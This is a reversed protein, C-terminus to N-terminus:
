EGLCGQVKDGLSLSVTKGMVYCIWETKGLGSSILLISSLFYLGICCKQSRLGSFDISWALIVKCLFASVM